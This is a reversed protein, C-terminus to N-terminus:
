PITRLRFVRVTVTLTTEAPFFLTGPPFKLAGLPLQLSPRFILSATVSSNTSTQPQHRQSIIM